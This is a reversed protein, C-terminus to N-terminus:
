TGPPFDGDFRVVSEVHGTRPFLDVPTVAGMRYGLSVLRAADRALADPGCSIYVIRKIQRAALFRLLKEECGKRPPDLIVVDPTIKGRAKEAAAFLAETDGADGCYFSANAIGNAAANTRACEVAEPVIEIGIVERVKAAMSLGITGAGCYLDLLLENGTLGAREAAIRYLLEAADHNVQYFAGPAIRFRLGCLTDTLDIKGWLTRYERGLILNTNKENRNLAIGTVQPFKERIMRVYGAEDPLSKGCIVPCVFIGGTGKAERLYLHRLLGKGTTEDYAHVGRATFFRCSETLIEGFVAPQLSCCAGATVRHSKAAYFGGYLGEKGEAVPYEAKNRYGRTQGTTQVPEIVTDPLGAKRFTHVLGERKLELERDYRLNRYVCGGCGAPANCFGNERWTSPTILFDLRAAAYTKNVKIIQARVRDGAVAGAVFVTRGDPLHGVGHGLNNLDTIDLDFFQGKQVGNHPINPDSM